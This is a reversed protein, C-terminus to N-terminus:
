ACLEGRYTVAMVICPSNHFFSIAATVALMSSNVNSNRATAGFKRMGGKKGKMTAVYLMIIILPIGAGFIM